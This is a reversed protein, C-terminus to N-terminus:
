AAAQVCAQAAAFRDDAVLTGCVQSGNAVQRTFTATARDTGTCSATQTLAGGGQRSTVGLTVSDRCDGAPVTLSVRVQDVGAGAGQVTTCLQGDGTQQANGTQANGTQTNGTQTNGTQTNGTQTNGTQTNGTQTNGTQTNGTQANGTQANGTQADIVRVAVCANTSTATQDSGRSSPDSPSRTANAPGDTQSGPQGAQAGANVTGANAAGPSTSASAVMTGVATLAGLTVVVIAGNRLSRRKM